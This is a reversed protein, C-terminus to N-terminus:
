AAREETLENHRTEYADVVMSFLDPYNKEFRAALKARRDWENELAKIGTRAAFEKCMAAAFAEAKQRDTADPPLKDLISNTWTDIIAQAQVSKKTSDAAANGDDDEPALGTLGELGIRRAYTVASKFGQMDNKGVILPVSTEIMTESEGHYLTTREKHGFEDQVSQHFICIGVATLAPQCAEVVQALNAYKSRFHPNESDKILKGMNAQAAALASYINKYTTM